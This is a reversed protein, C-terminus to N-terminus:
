PGARKSSAEKLTELLPRIETQMINLTLPGIHKYRIVLASDIVFTEPVAYVGLDIGLRGQPDTISVLYPNGNHELWKKADKPLDKYNLGYIRTGQQKEALLMPHEDLCSVCWSAWVNVIAPGQLQTQNIQKKPAELLRAQFIPFPKGILPSPVRSPDQTLGFGLLAVLLLFVAIIWVPRSMKYPKSAIAVTLHQSYDVSHM